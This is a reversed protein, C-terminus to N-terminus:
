LGCFFQCKKLVLREVELLVAEVTEGWERLYDPRAPAFMVAMRVQKKERKSGWGGRKVRKEPM